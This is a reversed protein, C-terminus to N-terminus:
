NELNNKRRATWYVFAEPEEHTMQQILADENDELLKACKFLHASWQHLTQLGL